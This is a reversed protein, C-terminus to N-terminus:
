RLASTVTRTNDFRQNVSLRRYLGHVIECTAGLECGRCLSNRVIEADTPDPDMTKWLDVCEEAHRQM